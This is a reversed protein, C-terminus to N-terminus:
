TLTWRNLQNPCVFLIGSVAMTFLIYLHSGNVPLGAPLGLDQHSSSTLFSKFFIFSTFHASCACSQELHFAITSFALVTDSNYRWLFSFFFLFFFFLFFIIFFIIEWCQAHQCYIINVLQLYECLAGTQFICDKLSYFRNGACLHSETSVSLKNLCPFFTGCHGATRSSSLSPASWEASRACCTNVPHLIRFWEAQVTPPPDSIPVVFTTNWLVIQYAAATAPYWM